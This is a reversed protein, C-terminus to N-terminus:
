GDRHRTCSVLRDIYVTMATLCTISKKLFRFTTNPNETTVPRRFLGTVAAKVLKSLQQSFLVLDFVDSGCDLCSPFQELNRCRWLQLKMGLRLEQDSYTVVFVQGEYIRYQGFQM